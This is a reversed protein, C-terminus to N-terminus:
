EEARTNWFELFTTRSVAWPMTTSGNVLAWLFANLCVLAERQGQEREDWDAFPYKGQAAGVLAPEEFHLSIAFWACLGDRERGARGLIDYARKALEM